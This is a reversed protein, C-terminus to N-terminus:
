DGGVRKRLKLMLNELECESVKNIVLLVCAGTRGLQDAPSPHRVGVSVSYM